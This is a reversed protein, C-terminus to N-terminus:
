PLAREVLVRVSGSSGSYGNVRVRYTGDAPLDATFVADLSDPSDDGQAIVSDDPGILVAVPDLGASAARASVVVQQGASGQFAFSLYTNAPLAADASLLLRPGPPPQTPAALVRAWQLRYLGASGANEGTIALQYEGTLPARAEFATPGASAAARATTSGDPALLELAAALGTGPADVSARVSDGANLSLTWVDRLGRQAVAGELLTNQPATGRWVEAYGEGRGFSVIFDGSSSGDATIFVSYVGAELVGLAPALAGGATERSAVAEFLVEGAPTIIQARPIVASGPAPNVALTIIEAPGARFVYRAFEGAAAIRGLVPQGAQLVAGSAAPVPTALGAAPTPTAAAQAAQALAGLLLRFGGLGGASYVQLYGGGAPLRVDLLADSGGGADDDMAILAGDPGYVALAPDFGADLAQAQVRLAAGTM